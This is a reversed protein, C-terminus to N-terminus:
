AGEKRRSTAVTLGSRNSASTSGRPGVVVTQDSDSRSRRRIPSPRRPPDEDPPLPQVRWEPLGDTTRLRAELDRGTARDTRDPGDRGRARGVSDDPKVAGWALWGVAIGLAFAALVLLGLEVFVSSM